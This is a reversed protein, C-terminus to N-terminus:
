MILWTSRKTNNFYAMTVGEQRDCIPIVFPIKGPQVQELSLKWDWINGVDSLKRHIYVTGKKIALIVGM